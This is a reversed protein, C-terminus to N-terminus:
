RARLAEVWSTGEDPVGSPGLAAHLVGILRSPEVPKTLVVDALQAVREGGMERVRASHVVRITDPYRLAVHMLLEVGNSGPMDLDTVLVDYRAQRLCEVAEPVTSATSVDWQPREVRLLRVLTRSM